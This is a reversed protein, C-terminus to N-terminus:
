THPGKGPEPLRAFARALESRSRFGRKRFVSSVHHEITKPSLFLAAAVEKNSRGAAVLLAVRTEQSTLPEEPAAGRRRATAGTALLEHETQRSWHTLDMEAFLDHALHLQERAAIRQGERRLRAGFLMRTRATEFRDGTVACAALAIQYAAYAVEPQSATIGECRAVFARTRAPASPGTIEAYRRSLAAAKGGQGLGAYAEVLLPAVGLPEGLAGVGGDAAIRAELVDVIQRLDGRCLACFAVTLAHHAAVGTTGALDILARARVLAAGAEDHQGRAALQWALMEVAVAADAVYALQEALEAAEGADAFAGSHDGLWARGAARIALTPVLMGVAGLRRIDDVRASAEVMDGGIEGLFGFSLALLLVARPEHRLQESLALARVEALKERGADPDGVLVLSVGETFDALLRQEPDARDAVVAIRGACEAMGALHNLRFWVLALENLARVLVLGELLDCAAALHGASAHVSGTYQELMGLTFLAQGRASAPAPAALVRTVLAKTRTVDGAIFADEAAAALRQAALDSSRTLLAARELALSASAFGLRRRDTAAVQALEEAVSDDPGVRSEALHWTRAPSDRPLEGALALHAERQQAPTALRLVATRLLPHRFRIRGATTALVGHSGLEDLAPAADDGGAALAAPVTTAGTSQDLALLIVARWAEASLSSLLAEYYVLLRDGVPLPDPLPAAGVWQSRDLRQAVELLALPNGETGTVLQEVVTDPAPGPILRSAADRSLGGLALVPIGHVLDPPVSGSRATLVFAVADSGLRRAAFLIAAASERDLWQLDDVTVLVPASEAAAALLSLTAAAVLFRDAPGQPTAWGLAARLADAQPTPVEDLLSRIPTILELLGAHVLVTEPEVGQVSLCTFGGALERASDLLITKGIGPDGDILLAASQGARADFLLRRIAALEADRGVVSDLTMLSKGSAVADAGTCVDVSSLRKFSTAIRADVFIRRLISRTSVEEPHAYQAIHNM